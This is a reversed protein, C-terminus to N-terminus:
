LGNQQQPTLIHQELFHKIPKHDIMIRFQQGLFYHRWNQVAFVIALMEKDYISLDLNRGSLAKSLYTIPHGEQCLVDGIGIGSVDLEVVFQKTFDPLALVPTTALVHKLKDFATISDAIWSFNGQQLM